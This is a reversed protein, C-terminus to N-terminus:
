YNRCEWVLTNWGFQGVPIEYTSLEVISGHYHELIDILCDMSPADLYRRLLSLARLGNLHKMTPYAQRMGVGSYLAYRLDMFRESNMVEAQLVVRDDPASEDILLEEARFGQLMLNGCLLMMQRPPIRYRQAKVSALRTTRLSVLPPLTQPAQYYPEVFEAYSWQRIINGLTLTRSVAYYEAKSRISPIPSKKGNIM